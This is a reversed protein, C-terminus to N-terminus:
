QSRKGVLRMDLRLSRNNTRRRGSSRALYTSPRRLAPIGSHGRVAEGRDRFCGSSAGTWFTQSHRCARSRSHINSLAKRQSTRVCPPEAANRNRGLKANNAVDFHCLGSGRRDQLFTDAVWEPNWAVDVKTIWKDGEIRYIGTYAAMGNLLDARDQVTQPPKRSESTLVFM